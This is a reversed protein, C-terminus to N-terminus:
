FFLLQNKRMSKVRDASENTYLLTARVEGVTCPFRTTCTGAQRRIKCGTTRRKAFTSEERVVNALRSQITPMGGTPDHEGSWGSFWAFNDRPSCAHVLPRQMKM